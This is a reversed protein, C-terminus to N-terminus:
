LSWKNYRLKNHIASDYKLSKVAAFLKNEDHSFPNLLRAIYELDSASAFASSVLVMGNAGFYMIKKFAWKEQKERDHQSSIYM